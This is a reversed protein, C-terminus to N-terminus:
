ADHTDGGKWKFVDEPDYDVGAKARASACLSGRYLTEREHENCGVPCYKCGEHRLAPAGVRMNWKNAAEARTSSYVGVSAECVDANKCIAVYKPPFVGPPSPRIIQADSGCFPCTRLKPDISGMM